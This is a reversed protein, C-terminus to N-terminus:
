DGARRVALGMAVVASPAIDKIYSEDLKPSVSVSRLPDMIAVKVALREIMADQFGKILSAGGCLYVENMDEESISSRFYEFSRYIEAFLEDSASSIVMSAEEPSVRDVPQNRKLREADEWSLDFARCLEETHYNSGIASDRTFVPIGSQLININTKSAGINVIAINRDFTAPYNIEFVNSLAFSDIDLIVPNLGAQQVAEVYSDMVNKKVAVLLIEMMDEEDKKAGLIEFDLNVESIDFPIYQEAESIITASLEDYTALPLSIKKVIVSSHGSIGINVDGSKLGSMKLLEKIHSVLASKDSILGDVILGQPLQLENYLSLEYGAKTGSIKAVKISSSGIDLGIPEKKKFLM